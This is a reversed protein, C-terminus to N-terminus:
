AGLAYGFDCMAKAAEKARKAASHIADEEAYKRNLEENEMNLMDIAHEIRGILAQALEFAVVNFKDDDEKAIIDSLEEAVRKAYALQRITEPTKITM